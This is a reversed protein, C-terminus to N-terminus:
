TTEKVESDLQMEKKSEIYMQISVKKEVMLNKQVNYADYQTKHCTSNFNGQITVWCV